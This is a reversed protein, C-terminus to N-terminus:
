IFFNDFRRHLGAFSMLSFESFEENINSMHLGELAYRRPSKRAYCNMSKWGAKPCSDVAPSVHFRKWCSTAVDWCTILQSLFKRTWLNVKLLNEFSKRQKSFSKKKTKQENSFLKRNKCPSQNHFGIFSSSDWRSSSIIAIDIRSLSKKM